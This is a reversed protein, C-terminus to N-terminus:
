PNKQSTARYSNKVPIYFLQNTKNTKQNFFTEYWNTLGITPNLAFCSM